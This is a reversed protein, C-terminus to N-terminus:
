AGHWLFNSQPLLLCSSVRHGALPGVRLRAPISSGHLLFLDGSLPHVWPGLPRAGPAFQPTLRLGFVGPPLSSAMASLDAPPRQIIVPFSHLPSPRFFTCPVWTFPACLLAVKRQGVPLLDCTIIWALPSPCLVSQRHNYQINRYGVEETSYCSSKTYAFGFRTSSLFTWRMETAGDATSNPSFRKGM